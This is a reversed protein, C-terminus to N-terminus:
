YWVREPPQRTELVQGRPYPEFLMPAAVGEAQLIGELGARAQDENVAQHLLQRAADRIRRLTVLKAEVTDGGGRIRDVPPVHGRLRPCRDMLGASLDELQDLFDHLLAPATKALDWRLGNAERELQQELTTVAQAAEAFLQGAARAQGQAQRYVQEAAAAHARAELLEPTTGQAELEALRAAMAPRDISEATADAATNEDIVTNGRM